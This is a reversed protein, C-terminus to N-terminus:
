GSRAWSHIRELESFLLHDEISAQAVQTVADCIDKAYDGDFVRVEQSLVRFPVLIVCILLCQM